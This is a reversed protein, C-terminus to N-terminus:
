EWGEFQCNHQSSKSHLEAFKDYKIAEMIENITGLLKEKLEELEEGTALPLEKIVDEELYWYALSEVPETLFEAAALQYVRLQDVDGDSKTKPVKGTKYDIIALGNKGVDARDIKGVFDYEGIKLKFFKELYKPTPKAELTKEYFVKLMDEGRKRYEEKQKKSQYWEDVWHKTYLSKLADLTLFAPEDTGGFLDLQKNSLQRLYDELFEQFVKHITVGFSLPAAGPLPLKLYNKYKYELPCKTFTSIDTFSFKTPFEHYVQKKPNGEPREFVVKGTAKALISEPLLGCEVLFSSPKKLRSGGYDKGWSFFLRQKARTVAVYFLRREEQLHFDGEPLIDKILATPIEIADKKARTPFRQDVM